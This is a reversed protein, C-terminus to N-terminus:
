VSAVYYAEPGLFFQIELPDLHDIELDFSGVTNVFRTHDFALPLDPHLQLYGVIQKVAV